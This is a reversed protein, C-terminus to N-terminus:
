SDVHDRRALFLTKRPKLIDDIAARILGAQRDAKQKPDKVEALCREGAEVAAEFDAGTRRWSSSPSVPIPGNIVRDMAKGFGIVADLAMVDGESELVIVPELSDPDDIVNVILRGRLRM